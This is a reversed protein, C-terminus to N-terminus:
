GCYCRVLGNHHDCADCVQVGCHRSPTTTSGCAQCKIDQPM